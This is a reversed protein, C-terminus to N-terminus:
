RLNRLRSFFDALQDIQADTLGRAASQMIEANGGGRTGDRLARLALALYARNQGGIIPWEENVPQGSAGHCSQCQGVIDSLNPPPDVPPPTQAKAAFAFALAPVLPWIMQGARAAFGSRM